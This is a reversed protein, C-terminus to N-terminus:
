FGFQLVFKAFRHNLIEQPRQWSGYANNQRVVPNANLANYLDISAITRTGGVRLIKAFRLDLQNTREGYLAGPELVNVVINSRGGSLSRGLSPSVIANTATYNAALLDGPLAQVSATAQVDIRPVTYSALLKANTVFPSQQHCQSAPLWVNANAVTLNTSGLLIEPLQRVIECNDTTRREFTVGGQLFMGTGPRVNVGLDFGNVHDTQKGYTESFTIMQDARRGFAEPKLDYLGSVTYGGGGPLRPDAPATISFTDFDEPGVARNDNVVFNGFWTRYYGVDISVRPVIEHQISTAFQWNHDRKGWGQLTDPDYSSAVRTSGFASNDM